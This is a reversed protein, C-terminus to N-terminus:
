ESIADHKMEALEKRGGFRGSIILDSFPKRVERDITGRPNRTLDTPDALFWRLRDAVRTSGRVTTNLTLFLIPDRSVFLFAFLVTRIQTFIVDSLTWFGYNLLAAYGAARLVIQNSLGDM